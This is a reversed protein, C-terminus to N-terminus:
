PGSAPTLPRDRSAALGLAIWVHRFDEVDTALADVGLAALLAWLPDGTAPRDARVLTAVVAAFAALGPLGLTAAVNVITSHADFPAGGSTGPHRGPGIGTLPNKAFTVISSVLAEARPSLGREVELAWPRLPDVRVHVVTPALVIVAALAAAALATRPQARRSRLFLALLFTVITRSFTMLVAVGFIVQAGIRVGKPWASLAAMASGFLCVSALLNPHLCPGQIRPYPGPVLDGFTGVFPSSVGAYFLGAGIFGTLAAALAGCTAARAFTMRAQDDTALDAVLIASAGLSVMGVVHALSGLSRESGIWSLLAAAGYAVVAVVWPTTKRGEVLRPIWCLLALGLFLDSWQAHPHV